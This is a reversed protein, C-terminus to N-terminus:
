KGSGSGTSGFLGSGSECCQMYLLQYKKKLNLVMTKNPDSVTHKAHKPIRKTYNTISSYKKLLVLIFTSM